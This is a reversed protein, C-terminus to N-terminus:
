LGLFLFRQQFFRMILSLPSSASQASSSESGQPTSSDMPTENEVVEGTEQGEDILNSNASDADNIDTLSNESVPSEEIGSYSGAIGDNFNFNIHYTGGYCDEIIKSKTGRNTVAKVTADVPTFKISISVSYFGGLKIASSGSDPGAYVHVTGSIVGKVRGWVTLGADVSEGGAPVAQKQGGDAANVSVAAFVTALMLVAMLVALVKRKM